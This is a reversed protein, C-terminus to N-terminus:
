GGARRRLRSILGGGVRQEFDDKGIQSNGKPILERLLLLRKGCELLSEVCRRQYFRIGDELAGISLAGEYGLVRALNQCQGEIVAQARAEERVAALASATTDDRDADLVEPAPAPNRTM